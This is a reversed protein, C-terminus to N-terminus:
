GTTRAGAGTGIAGDPAAGDFVIVPRHGRDGAWRQALRVLEEDPLEAVALAPREPRRDPGKHTRGRSVGHFGLDLFCGFVDGLARPRVADRARTEHCLADREANHGDDSQLHRDGAPLDLVPRAAGWPQRRSSRRSAGVRQARARAQPSRRRANRAPSERARARSRHAALRRSACRARPGPHGRHM